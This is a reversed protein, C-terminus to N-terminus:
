RREAGPEPGSLPPAPSPAAAEVWQGHRYLPRSVDVGLAMPLAAMDLERLPAGDDVALQASWSRQAGALLVSELRLHALFESPALVPGPNGRCTACVVAAPTPGPRVLVRRNQCEPCTPWAAIHRRLIDMGGRQGLPSLLADYREILESVGPRALLREALRGHGARVLGLASAADLATQESAAFPAHASTGPDLGAMAVLWRREPESAAIAALALCVSAAHAELGPEGASQRLAYSLVLLRQALPRAAPSVPVEAAVEEALLFYAQPDDPSLAGLRRVLDPLPIAALDRNEAPAAPAPAPAVPPQAGALALGASRTVALPATAAMMAILLRAM